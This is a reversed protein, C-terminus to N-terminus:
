VLLELIYKDGRMVRFVELNNKLVILFGKIVIVGWVVLFFKVLLFKYEM